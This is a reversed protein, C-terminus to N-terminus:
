CNPICPKNLTIVPLSGEGLTAGKEIFYSHPLSTPRVQQPMGMLLCTLEELLQDYLEKSIEKSNYEGDYNSVGIYHKGDEIYVDVSGYANWIGLTKHTHNEDYANM